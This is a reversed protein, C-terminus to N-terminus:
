KTDGRLWKLLGDKDLGLKSLAANVSSQPVFGKIARLQTKGVFGQVSLATLFQMGIGGTEIGEEAFLVREYCMAASVAEPDIPFIRNLKMVSVPEEYEVAAAAAAAFTRGYTVLLTKAKETEFLTYANEDYPLFAISKDEGGRPYRVAVPCDFDDIAACLQGRLENYNAPSFVAMGPVTSLFAADFIGQHTEGDDGVIGARDVGLVIHRSEIAADHILQDYARQLFTSYIAFVPCKGGAALAAAFTAGFEEAIGVDYYRKDHKHDKSFHQLGTGHEMAATIAVVDPRDESLKALEKGFVSSFNEGGKSLPEGTETNFKSVGHFEGPNKEAPAYGKGKKTEIHVFTPGKTKKAQEVVTILSPIDHGDVPGLYTFGFEEFFTNPYIRRKLMTKASSILNRLPMGIVPISKVTEEIVKKVKFYQPKTRIVSLYKALAGENKSISMENDNLIVILNEGSKGINNLGEYIMGGTFAGDGVVAVVTHKDDSLTMACRLGYAAALSTSAHGAVFSDYESEASKPFGSIGGEQRLTDICDFRGTLMKYTYCQHGVDWVIKDEPVDLVYLLALTLEVAGLNSALHGGTKSVTDILKVRVEKALQKLQDASMGKVAKVDDAAIQLLSKNEM